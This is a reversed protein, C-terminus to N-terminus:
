ATAALQRLPSSGLAARKSKPTVPTPAPVEGEGAQEKAIRELEAFSLNALSARWGVKRVGILEPAPIRREKVWRTLTRESCNRLKAMERKGIYPDIGAAIAQKFRDDKTTEALM